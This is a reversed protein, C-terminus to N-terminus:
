CILLRAAKGPAAPPVEGAVLLRFGETQQRIIQAVFAAEDVLHPRLQRMLPFCAAIQPVSAAHRFAALM